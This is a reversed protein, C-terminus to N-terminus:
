RMLRVFVKEALDVIKESILAVKIKKYINSRVYEVVLGVLFILVAGGLVQLVGLVVDLSTIYSFANKLKENWIIINLQFLYIGFALPSLRSIIKKSVKKSVKIRSFLIVLILASGLITPSLYNTLTIRENRVYIKDIWTIFICIGLWIVLERSKKRSFLKIKKTIAGICYLIMIWLASYGNGTIFPDAITGLLSYLFFMIILMAMAEKESIEFIYKDFIPMAFFLAVYATFYWYTNLMVPFISKLIIRVGIDAGCIQGILMTVIFSYFFVQLWMNVIKSYKHKKNTAVYGSILAFGDVACYCMIEMLWYVKYKQTGIICADLVGGQGLVHLTCVMFMFVLRSLDIGYNREENM